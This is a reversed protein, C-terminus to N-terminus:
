FLVSLKLGVGRKWRGIGTFSCSIACASIPRIPRPV